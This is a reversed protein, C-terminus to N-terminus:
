LWKANFVKFNVSDEFIVYYDCVDTFGTQMLDYDYDSKNVKLTEM